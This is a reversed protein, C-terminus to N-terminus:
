GRAALIIAPATGDRHSRLATKEEHLRLAEDVVNM